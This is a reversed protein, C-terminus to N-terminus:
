WAKKTRGYQYLPQGTMPPAWAAVGWPNRVVKAERRAEEAKKARALKVKALAEESRKHRELMKAAKDAAAPAMPAAPATWSTLPVRRAATRAPPAAPKVLAPPARAPPAKAKAPPAKIKAPPAKIKAPPAKTKAPLAKVKPAKAPPAKALLAKAKAPPAPRAAAASRADFEALFDAAAAAKRLALLAAQKKALVKAEAEALEECAAEAAAAATRAAALAAEREFNFTNKVYRQVPTPDPPMKKAESAQVAGATRKRADSHEETRSRISGCRGFLDADDMQLIRDRFRSSLSSTESRNVSTRTQAM